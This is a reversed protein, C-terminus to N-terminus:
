RTPEAAPAGWWWQRELSRRQPWVENMTSADYLRGDAMVHSISLSNRLDDLPNRELVQLDALKGPEASGLDRAHGIAHAGMLTAIRLADHARMGGSGLLWLEWHSGLGPLAGHSGLGIRGGAALTKAAQAAVEATSFQNPHALTMWPRLAKRALEPEPVFRRMKADNYVDFERYFLHEGELRPVGELITPTYTIGSAAFLEIVDQYVTAPAFSHEVGAFGDMAATLNMKLDGNGEATPTLRWQRAANVLWQRARRGGVRYSKVTETRFFEGYRQAVDRADAASRLDEATYIARGTSFIRPGLIDGLAVRDAYTLVDLTETQPDRTSTVGYALNAVYQWVQRRQVGWAPWMHDHIDVFGPLITKGSMDIIQTGAPIQLSGRSAVGAIRNGNVLLDANEIVEDGRMTIVRAGRLLLTGQRVGRHMSVTLDLRSPSVPGGSAHSLRQSFVSSGLAWRAATSDRAWEIFDAGIRTLRTAPLVANDSPLIVTEARGVVDPLDILWVQNNLLALARRGDPSILIEDALVRMLKMGDWGEARLVVRRESGDWRVSVLGDVPDKFFVRTPDQTFHPTGARISRLQGVPADRVQAIVTTAGGDAPLWVLAGRLLPEPESLLGFRLARPSAISVIRRGDPSYEIQEYFAQERTLREPKARGDARVRWIAGGELDNWTVYALYRGDPSWTPFFAGDGEASLQRPPPLETVGASDVPAAQVWIRGLASFAISRGDPSHRPQEIRRAKVDGTALPYEQQSQPALGVDVAARFPISTVTGDPVAVRWIKGGQSIVLAASDPTFSAGSALDRLPAWGEQEDQDIVPLLTREDGSSLEVLNLMTRGALRTAYVLHRGNPSLAPRLGGGFRRGWPEVLGTARDLRVLQWSGFERLVGRSAFVYRPDAGFAAGLVSLRANGDAPLGTLPTGSSAGSAPYLVLDMDRGYINVSTETSRSVILWESDPTWEPSVFIRDSEQTVPRPVGGDAAVIWLNDDGSRDSVFVIARGDPSFRPQADFASGSTLRKAEGGAIPLTYLDGLLDFVITRGDPSVDLSMWTGEQATFQLRRAPEPDLASGAETSLQAHAGFMPLTAALLAVTAALATCASASKVLGTDRM